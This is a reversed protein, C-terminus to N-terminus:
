VPTLRKRGTRRRNRLIARGSKSSNRNLFGHQRKRRIKSPQYQRKMFGNLKTVQASRAGPSGHDTVQRWTLGVGSPIRSAVLSIGVTLRDPFCRDSFWILDFNFGLLSSFSPNGSRSPGSPTQLHSFQIQSDFRSRCGRAKVPDYAGQGSSREIM